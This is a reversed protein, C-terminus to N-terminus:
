IWIKDWLSHPLPANFAWAAITENDGAHCDVWCVCVVCTKRAKWFLCMSSQPPFFTSAIQDSGKKLATDWLPPNSIPPPYNILQIVEALLNLSILGKLTYHQRLARGGAGVPLRGPLIRGLMPSFNEGVLRGFLNCFSFHNPTVFNAIKAVISKSTPIKREGLLCQVWTKMCM